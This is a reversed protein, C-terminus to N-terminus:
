SVYASRFRVTVLISAQDKAQYLRAPGLKLLESLAYVPSTFLGYSPWRLREPAFYLASTLGINWLCTDPQLRDLARELDRNGSRTLRVSAVPIVEQDDLKVSTPTDTIVSVQCGRETLGKVIESIYRWPQLPLNRPTYAFCIVAVRM